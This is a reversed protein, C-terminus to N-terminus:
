LLARLEQHKLVVKLLPQLARVPDDGRLSNWSLGYQGMLELNLRYLSGEKTVLQLAQLAAFTAAFVPNAGIVVRDVKDVFVSPNDKMSARFSGLVRRIGLVVQAATDRRVSLERDDVFTVKYPDWQYWPDSWSIGFSAGTSVSVKLEAPHDMSEVSIMAWSPSDQERGSAIVAVSRANIEGEQAVLSVDPGIQLHGDVGNLSIDQDTVIVARAIPSNLTLVGSLEGVEFALESKSSTDEEREDRLLLAALDGRQVYFSQAAEVSMAHSRIADDVLAEPLYSVGAEGIRQAHVFHAFFAGVRPLTALFADRRSTFLESQPSAIAWARVYDSFVSNAFEGGRLFPHDLVFSEIKAEYEARDHPDLVAPHSLEVGATGTVNLLRAIQEDRGYLTAREEGDERIALAEGVRDRVKVSERDLIQELVETLLEGRLRPRTSSGREQLLVSSAAAFNEVALRQAIAVVVPPYGLFEEADVWDATSFGLHLANGLDTLLRDRYEAFPASHRRHADYFEDGEKRRDLTRSILDSAQAHSLPAVRYLPSNIGCDLLGLYTTEIADRRGLIVVQRAGEADAVLWALDALFAEFNERGVALQAEDVSDLVLAARGAKLERVFTATGDFGLSKSLEGTLSGSGVRVDALDIYPMGMSYAIAKAAASKGMAGPATILLIPSKLDGGDGDVEVDPWIYDDSILDVVQIIDGRIPGLTSMFKPNNPLEAVMETLAERM